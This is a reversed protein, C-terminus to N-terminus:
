PQGSPSRHQGGAHARTATTALTQLLRLAVQPQPKGCRPCYRGGAPINLWFGNVAHRVARVAEILQQASVRRGDPNTSIGALVLVHPNATRAQQAEADVFWRFLALNAEAGQAQIEVIDACKAMAGIWGTREFARYRHDRQAAERDVRRVLDVAPTAILLKRHAHVLAAAHCVAALPDLQEASPTMAWSEPDYLVATVRPSRAIRRVGALSPSSRTRVVSWARYDAPVASGTVLFTCRSDFVRQQEALAFTQQAQRLSGVNVIWRLGACPPIAPANWAHAARPLLVISGLVALVLAHLRRRCQRM